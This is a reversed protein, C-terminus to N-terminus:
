FNRYVLATAFMYQPVTEFLVVGALGLSVILAFLVLDIKNPM